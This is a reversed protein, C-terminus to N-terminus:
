RAAPHEHYHPRYADAADTAADYAYFSRAIAVGCSAHTSDSNAQPCIAIDM